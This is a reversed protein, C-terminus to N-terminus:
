RIESSFAAGYSCLSETGRAFANVVPLSYSTLCLDVFSLDCAFRCSSCPWARGRSGEHAVRRAVDGPVRRTLSLLYQAQAPSVRFTTERLSAFIAFACLRTLDKPCAPFM